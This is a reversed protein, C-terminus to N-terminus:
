PAIENTPVLTGWTRGTFRSVRIVEFNTVPRNTVPRGGAGIQGEFFAVGSTAKSLEGLGGDGKFIIGRLNSFRAVTTAPPIMLATPTISDFNNFSDPHLFIGQPLTNWGTVMTNPNTSNTPDWRVVAFSRYAYNTNTFNGEPFIVAANTGISIATNRALELSGLLQGLAQKRGGSGALGRLAPAAVVALLAMVGVVVMLEVLSFAAVKLRRM